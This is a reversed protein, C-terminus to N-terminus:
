LSILRRLKSLLGPPKRSEPMTEVTIQQARGPQASLSQHRRLALATSGRLVSTRLPKRLVRYIQGYNILDIIHDADPQDTTILYVLDPKTQRLTNILATVAEGEFMADSVVVGIPECMLVDLADEISGAEYVVFSSRLTHAIAMRENDNADLVLVGPGSPAEAVVPAEFDAVPASPPAMEILEAEEAEPEAEARPLPTAQRSLRVAAEMTRSIDDRKWPKSVFRFVECDNVSGIIAELDSYGTLLVRTTQPRIEAAAKLVEVGTMLPMRQDSIIVDADWERLIDLAENGDTTTRVEYHNRFISKLSVLIRSEDDVFLLRPRDAVSGEHM